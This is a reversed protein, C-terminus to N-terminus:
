RDQTASTTAKEILNAPPNNFKELQALLDVTDPLDYITACPSAVATYWTFKPGECKKAKLTIHKQLMAKFGPAERRGSKSGFYVTAFKKRVPSWVLFQPGYQCGSDKVHDAEHMIRIFEPDVPDHVSIINDGGTSLALPRWSIALVDTELGLDDYNDGTILAYHNVPFEGSKCKETNSTVLAIRPLFASNTSTDDFQKDSYKSLTASEPLILDAFALSLISTILKM